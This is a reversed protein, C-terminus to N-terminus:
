GARSPTGLCPGATRQSVLLQRLAAGSEDTCSPHRSLHARRRRVTSECTSKPTSLHYGEEGHRTTLSVNALGDRRHHPTTYFLSIPVM